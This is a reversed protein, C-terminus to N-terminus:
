FIHFKSGTVGDTDPCFQGWTAYSMNLHIKIFFFSKFRQEFTLAPQEYSDFQCYIMM